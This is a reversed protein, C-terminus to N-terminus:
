NNCHAIIENMKSKIERYEAKVKEDKKKKPPVNTFNEMVTKNNAPNVKLLYDKLQKLLEPDIDNIRDYVQCILEFLKPRITGGVGDVSVISSNNELFEAINNEFESGYTKRIKPKLQEKGENSNIEKLQNTLDQTNLFMKRLDKSEGTTEKLNLQEERNCLKDIKKRDKKINDFEKSQLDNYIKYKGDVTEFPLRERTSTIKLISRVSPSDKWSQNTGGQEKYFKDMQDQFYDLYCDPNRTVSSDLYSPFQIENDVTIEIEGAGYPKAHGLMHHHDTKETKDGFRLAWLLAGLEFPRLNHFAISGRFETDPVAMELASSVNKNDNSSKKCNGDQRKGYKDIYGPYVFEKRLNYFKYGAITSDKNNYNEGNLYAPYFSAKPEALIMDCVTFTEPKGTSLLDGFFVRGKMNFNEHETKTKVTGFMVDTLDYLSDNLSDNKYKTKQCHSVMDGVSYKYLFRPMKCLGLRSQGGTEQFYWVPIGCKNQHKELYDYLNDNKKENKSHEALIFKNVTETGITQTKSNIDYFFYCKELTQPDVNNGKIRKNVCVIYGPNYGNVAEQKLSETFDGTIKAYFETKLIDKGLQEYKKIASLDNYIKKNLLKNITSNEVVACKAPTFIWEKNKSDFKLFGTQVKGNNLYSDYENMYDKGKKIERYSYTRDNFVNFKGFSVISLINRVLGKLSSGPIVFQGSSPHREWKLCGDSSSGICLHTINKLTINIKGSLGDEFPLDHSVNYAWSPEFIWRSIPIFNYPVVIPKSSKKRENYNM